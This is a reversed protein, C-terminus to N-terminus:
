SCFFGIQLLYFSFRNFWAKPAQKLGYIAKKLLCVHSPYTTNVFRPPQEMYINEKLFGHLFANKVDLQCIPWGKVVALSLVIRITTPKVVPSFTEDYGIAKKQNCRKAM